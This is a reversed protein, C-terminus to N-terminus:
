KAGPTSFTHCLIFSNNSQNSDLRASHSCERPSLVKTMRMQGDHAAAAFAAAAVVAPRSLFDSGTVDVGYLVERGCEQLSYQSIDYMIGPECVPSTICNWLSYCEMGIDNSIDASFTIHRGFELVQAIQAALSRSVRMYLRVVDQQIKAEEYTQWMFKALTVVWAGM